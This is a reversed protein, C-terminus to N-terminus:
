SCTCTRIPDSIIMNTPGSGVSGYFLVLSSGKKPEVNAYIKLRIKKETNSKTGYNLREM